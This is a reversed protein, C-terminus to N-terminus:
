AIDCSFIPWGLQDDMVTTQDLKDEPDAVRDSLGKMTKVFNRGEGIVWPSVRGELTEARGMATCYEASHVDIVDAASIRM